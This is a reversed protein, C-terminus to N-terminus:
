SVHNGEQHEKLVRHPVGHAVLEVPCGFLGNVVEESLEPDGHYVLGLNLCALEKVNSSIAMVNHTVMVITIEKNLEGLLSYIDQSSSMDVSATPEDLLLLKPETMLARAILLKQFEGGSLQSINRDKLDGLGVKNLLDVARLKESRNFKHFFSLGPKLAGLLVVEIVSIPFNRDVSSFQPVYGILRRSKRGSGGFIKVEGSDVPVLGLIAKLLTSKGGGNPGMIALFDRERVVLNIDKLAQVSGYYVDLGSVEIVNM